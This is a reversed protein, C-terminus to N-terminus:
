DSTRKVVRSGRMFILCLWRMIQQTISANEIPCDAHHGLDGGFNIWKNRKGGWVGEICDTWLKNLLTVLLCVPLFVSLFGLPM